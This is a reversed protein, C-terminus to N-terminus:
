QCQGDEEEGKGEQGKARDRVEGKAKNKGKERDRVKGKAKEYSAGVSDKSM